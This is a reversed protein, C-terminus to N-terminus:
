AHILKWCSSSPRVRLWNKWFATERELSTKYDLDPQHRFSGDTYLLIIVIPNCLRLRMGLGADTGEADINQSQPVIASSPIFLRLSQDRTEAIFRECSVGELVEIRHSWTHATRRYDFTPLIHIEVEVGTNSPTILRHLARKGWPMWDTITFLKAGDSNHCETELIATDPQYKQQWNVSKQGCPKIEFFGSHFDVLRGFVFPSDFRPICFWDVAGTPSILACTEGNGIIGYFTTSKKPKKTM